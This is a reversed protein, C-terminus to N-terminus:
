GGKMLHESDLECRNYDGREANERLTMTFMGSGCV